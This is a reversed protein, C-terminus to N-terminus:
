RESPPPKAERNAYAELRVSIADGERVPPNAEQNTCAELGTVGLKTVGLRM